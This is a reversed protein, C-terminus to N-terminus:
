KVMFDNMRPGISRQGIVIFPSLDNAEVLKHDKGKEYDKKRDNRVQEMAKEDTCQDIDSRAIYENHGIIEIGTL